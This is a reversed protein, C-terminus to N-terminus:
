AARAPAAEDAQGILQDLLGLLRQSPAEMQELYQLASDRDGRDIARACAIGLRHVEHHPEAIQRYAPHHRYPASAPGDYWQGLRCAHADNLEAVSLTEHGMLKNLLRKKWIVHDAKALRLVKDPVDANQFVQLQGAILREAETMGNGVETIEAVNEEAHQAIEGVKTSIDQAAVEQQELVGAIESIRAATNSAKDLIGQMADRVDGMAREGDDSAAKAERMAATVDNMDGVLSGIRQRIEETAKSTQKALNKVENAVVAFGKGAEGARAAEITANLALLNTQGAIDEITQVIDGINQSEQALTEIKAAADDVKSSLGGVTAAAQGVVREGNQAADHTEQTLSNAARTSEGISAIGNVTEEIASSISQTREELDRVSKLLHSNAISTRNVSISIDVASDMLQVGHQELRGDPGNEPASPFAGEGGAYVSTALDMDLMMVAQIAAVDRAQQAPRFRHGHLVTACMTELAADYGAMVVDGRVGLERWRRGVARASEGYSEDLPGSLMRQWHDRLAHCAHSADPERLPRDTAACARVRSYFARSAADLAGQLTPACHRITRRRADDLGYLGLGRSVAMM